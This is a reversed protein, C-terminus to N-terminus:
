TIWGEESDGEPHSEEEVMRIYAFRILANREAACGAHHGRADNRHFLARPAVSRMCYELSELCGSRERASVTAGVAAGSFM